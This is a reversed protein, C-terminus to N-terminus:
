PFAIFVSQRATKIQNFYNFPYDGYKFTENLKNIFLDVEDQKFNKGFVGLQQVFPVAYCYKIGYKKRWPVPMVLSYDDAVFGDWNDAMHDLYVSTAYILPNSSNKICDDWKQKDIESSPLIEIQM